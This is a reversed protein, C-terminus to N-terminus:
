SLSMMRCCDMDESRWPSRQRPNAWAPVPPSRSRRGMSKVCAAHLAFQRRQHCLYDLVVGLLFVRWGYAAEQRLIEVTVSNGGKVLFRVLDSIKLLITHDAGIMLWKYPETGSDLHEPVKGEVITVDVPRRVGSWPPLQPLELSSCVRWGCVQYDYTM